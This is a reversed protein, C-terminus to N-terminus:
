DDNSTVVVEHLNCRLPGQAKVSGCIDRPCEFLPFFLSALGVKFPFRCGLEGLSTLSEELCEFESRPLGVVRSSATESSVVVPPIPVVSAGGRLAWTTYTTTTTPLVWTCVQRTYQFSRHPGLKPLLHMLKHPGMHIHHM